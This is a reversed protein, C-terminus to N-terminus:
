ATLRDLVRKVHVATWTEAGRATPIGLENLAATLARLSTAGGARLMAITPALDAARGVARRKNAAVAKTRAEKSGIVV